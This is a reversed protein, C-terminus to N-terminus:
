HNYGHAWLDVALGAGTLAIFLGATALAANGSQWGWYLLLLGAGTLAVAGYIAHSEGSYINALNGASVVSNAGM